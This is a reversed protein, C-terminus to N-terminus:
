SRGRNPAAAGHPLERSPAATRMILERAEEGTVTGRDILGMAVAQIATWHAAVLDRTRCELWKLHTAAAEESANFHLAIDIAEAHDSRGHWSRWSRPNFRRQAEPGALCIIVAREARLRARDSGDYDLRIGRLPHVHDMRGHADGEPIISVRQIKM